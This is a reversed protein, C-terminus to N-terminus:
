SERWWTPDSALLGAALAPAIQFPVGDEVVDFASGEMVEAPNFPGIWTLTALGSANVYGPQINGPESLPSGLRATLTM